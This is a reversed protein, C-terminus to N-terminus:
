ISLMADRAAQRDREDDRSVMAVNYGNNAGYEAVLNGERRHGRALVGRSAPPRISVSIARGQADQYVVM